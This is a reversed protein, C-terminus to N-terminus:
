KKSRKKTRADNGTAPAAPRGPASSGVNVQVNGLAKNYAAGPIVISATGKEKRREDIFLVLSEDNVVNPSRTVFVVYQTTKPRVFPFFGIYTLYSGKVMMKAQEAGDYWYMYTRGMLFDEDTNNEIKLKYYTHVDKFVINELAIMVGKNIPKDAAINLKGPVDTHILSDSIRFNRLTDRVVYFDSNVTPVQNRPFNYLDIGKKGYRQWIGGESYAKEAEKKKNEAELKALREQAEKRAAEKRALEDAAKKRQEEEQKKKQALQEQQRQEKEAAEKQARALAAADQKEKLEKQKKEDQEKQLALQAAEKRAQEDAAKQAAAEKEAALQLQREKEKAEKRALELEAEKQKRESASEEAARAPAKTVAAEESKKQAALAEERRAAAEKKQREKEKALEDGTTTEAPDKQNKVFVKLEKLSSHDYWLPPRSDDNIDYTSDFLLRFMHSRGGENVLLGTVPGSAKDKNFQISISREERRKPIYYDYAAEDSFNINVVKDPFNIITISERGVIIKEGNINQSSAHAYYFSCCLVILLCKKFYGTTYM